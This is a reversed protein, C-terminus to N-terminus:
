LNNDGDANNLIMSLVNDDEDEYGDDDEDGDDELDDAEGDDDEVDDIKVM